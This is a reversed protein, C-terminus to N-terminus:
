SSPLDAASVATPGLDAFPLPVLVRGGGAFPLPLLEIPPRDPPAVFDIRNMFNLNDRMPAMEEDSSPSPDVRGRSNRGEGRRLAGSAEDDSEYGPTSSALGPTSSALNNSAVETIGAEPHAREMGATSASATVVPIHPRFATHGSGFRKTSPFRVSVENFYTVVRGQLTGSGEESPLRPSATASAAHAAASTSAFSSASM